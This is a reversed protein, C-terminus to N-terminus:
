VFYGLSKLACAFAGAHSVACKRRPKFAIKVKLMAIDPEDTAYGTIV